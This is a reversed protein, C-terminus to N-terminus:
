PIAALLERGNKKPARANSAHEKLFFKMDRKNWARDDSNFLTKYKEIEAASGPHAAITKAAVPRAAAGLLAAAFGQM